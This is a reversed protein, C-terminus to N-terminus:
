IVQLDEKNAITKDGDIISVDVYDGPNLNGILGSGVPISFTIVDGTRTEYNTTQDFAVLQIENKELTFTADSGDINLRVEISRWDIPQGGDQEVAIVVDGAITPDSLTVKADDINLRWIRPEDELDIFTYAWVFVVGALVVTIAVMLIVAIVPSVAKENKMGNKYM